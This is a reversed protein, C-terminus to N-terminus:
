PRYEELVLATGNCNCVRLRLTGADAWTPVSLSPSTSNCRMTGQSLVRPNVRWHGKSSEAQQAPRLQRLLSLYILLSYFFFFNCEACAVDHRPWTSASARQCPVFISYEAPACHSAIGPISQLDPQRGRELSSSSSPSCRHMWIWEPPKWRKNLIMVGAFAGASSLVCLLDASPNPLTTYLHTSCSRM